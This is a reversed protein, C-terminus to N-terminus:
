EKIKKLYDEQSALEFNFTYKMEPSKLHKVQYQMVADFLWKMDGFLKIENITAKYDKKIDEQYYALKNNTFDTDKEPNFILYVFKVNTNVNKYELINAAIGLFHCILQKVDFHLLTTEKYKFECEFHEKDNELDNSSFAFENKIEQIKEYVEKYVVGIKQTKHSAYIERCKAEVFIDCDGRQLYGDVNATHGVRTPLQKEFIFDPIDKSKLYVFRSSSGFSAMKPPNWGYRGKKEKLEGGDADNYHARHRESMKELFKKWADNSLYNNYPNEKDKITFGYESEHHCEKDRIAFDLAKQKNLKECYDKEM